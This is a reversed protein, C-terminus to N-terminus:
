LIALLVESLEEGSLLHATPEKANDGVLGEWPREWLRRLFASARMTTEAVLWSACSLAPPKLACHEFCGARSTARGWQAVRRWRGCLLWWWRFYVVRVIILM